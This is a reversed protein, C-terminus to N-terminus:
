GGASVGPAFLAAWRDPRVIVDDSGAAAGAALGLLRRAVDAVVDLGCREAAELAARLAVRGRAPDGEMNAVGAMVLCSVTKAWQPRESALARACRTAELLLARRGTPDEQALALATRARLWHAEIRLSEIRFFLARRLRPWIREVRAYAADPRGRYLDLHVWGLMSFYHQLHMGRVSWRRDAEELSHRAQEPEDAILWALNCFGLRFCTAAYLDGRAEAEVILEPVRRRIIALEGV